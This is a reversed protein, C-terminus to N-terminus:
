NIKNEDKIKKMLFEAIEFDQLEDIDVSEREPMVYCTVSDPDLLLGKKMLTEYSAINIAGNLCFLEPLDQSRADTFEQFPSYKKEKREFMWEPREKVKKVSALSNMKEELFKEIAEDIHKSTTLPSTAQIMVIIDPKEKNKELFNVAHQIVPIMLTDDQALEPPRMFPVSAGSEKSIRAIEKHDTSVLVRDILNANLAAEISYSILPKGLLEKLNKQPIRKSGGRAPIIAVIRKKNM